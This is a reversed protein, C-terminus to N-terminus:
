GIDNITTRNRPQTTETYNKLIHIVEDILISRREILRMLTMLYRVLNKSFPLKDSPVSAQDSEINSIYRRANAAQKKVKGPESQYYNKSRKNAALKRYYERCGFPCGLDTRNKNCHQTLFSIGCHCCYVLCPELDLNGRVIEGLSQEYAVAIQYIEGVQHWNDKPEFAKYLQAVM